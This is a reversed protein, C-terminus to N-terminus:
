KLLNLIESPVVGDLKRPQLFEKGQGNVNIDFMKVREANIDYILKGKNDYVIINGAKTQYYSNPTASIPRNTGSRGADIIGNFKIKEFASANIESTSKISRSSWVIDSQLITSGLLLTTALGPNQIVPNNFVTDYFSVSPKFKDSGDSQIEYKNGVDDSIPIM